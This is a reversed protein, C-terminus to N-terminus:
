RYHIPLMDLKLLVLLTLILLTGLTALVNITKQIKPSHNTWSQMTKVIGLGMLGGATNTILDTTDFAGLRLLYQSLELSFSLLFCYFLNTSLAEQPFLVQLYIGFPLFILMNLIVQSWDLRGGSVFVEPFPIWNIMQKGGYSFDVGFKLLIIWVLVAIYIGTLIRTLQHSSFSSTSM